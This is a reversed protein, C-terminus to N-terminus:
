GSGRLKNDNVGTSLLLLCHTSYDGMFVYHVLCDCGWIVVGQQKNNAHLYLVWSVHM